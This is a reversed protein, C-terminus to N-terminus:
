EDAADSTYLLCAFALEDLESAVRGLDDNVFRELEDRLLNCLLLREEGHDPIAGRVIWKASAIFVLFGEALKIPVRLM